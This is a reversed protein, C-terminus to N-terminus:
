AKQKRVAKYRKFLIKMLRICFDADNRNYREDLDGVAIYLRRHLKCLDNIIPQEAEVNIPEESVIDILKERYKRCKELYPSTM